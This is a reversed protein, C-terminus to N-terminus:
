NVMGRNAYFLVGRLLSILPTFINYNKIIINDFERSSSKCIM